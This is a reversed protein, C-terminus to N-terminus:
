NKDETYIHTHTHTHTHTHIYTRIGVETLPTIYNNRDSVNNLQSFYHCLLISNHPTHYNFFKTAFDVGTKAPQKAPWVHFFALLHNVRGGSNNHLKKARQYLCLKRIYDSSAYYFRRVVSQIVM